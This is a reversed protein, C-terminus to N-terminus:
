TKPAIDCINPSLLCSDDGFPHVPGDKSFDSFTSILKLSKRTFSTISETNDGHECGQIKDGSQYTNLKREGVLKYAPLCSNAKQNGHRPM